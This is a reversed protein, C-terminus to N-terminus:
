SRTDPRDAFSRQFARRNFRDPLKLTCSASRM